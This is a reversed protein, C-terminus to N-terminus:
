SARIWSCWACASNKGRRNFHLIRGVIAFLCTCTCLYTWQQTPKGNNWYNSTSNDFFSAKLRWRLSYYICTLSSFYHGNRCGAVWRAFFALKVDGHTALRTSSLVFHLTNQIM